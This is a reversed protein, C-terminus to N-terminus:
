KCNVVTLMFIIFFFMGEVTEGQHLNQLPVTWRQLVIYCFYCPLVTYPLFFLTLFINCIHCILKIIILTASGSLKRAAGLRVAAGAGAGYQSWYFCICFIANGIWDRKGLDPLSKKFLM